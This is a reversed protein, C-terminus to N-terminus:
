LEVTDIDDVVSALEEPTYNRTLYSDKYNNKQIHFNYNLEKSLNYLSSILFGAPNYLRGEKKLILIEQLKQELPESDSRELLKNIQELVEAGAIEQKNIKVSEKADIKAELSSFIEALLAMGPEGVRVSMSELKKRININYIISDKSNNKKISQIIYKNIINIIIDIYDSSFRRSLNAQSESTKQRCLFISTTKEKKQCGNEFKSQLKRLTPTLIALAVSVIPSKIESYRINEGKFFHNFITDFFLLRDSDIMKESAEFFEKSLTVTNRINKKM